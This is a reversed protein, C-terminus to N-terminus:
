AVIVLDSAAIPPFGTFTALQVAAGVGNGDADFYLIGNGPNYWLRQDASSPAPGTGFLGPALSGLAEGGLAAFTSRSIGIKDTGSAFDRVVDADVSFPQDFVFLDAGAGGTLEDFGAAGILTDAGDGGQLWDRGLGGILLDDGGNGILFDRGLGGDIRNNGGNGTITNDFSNGTIELDDSGNMTLNEVNEPMAYSVTTFIRDVGEGVLEIIQDGVNDVFYTDAGIGGVLLDAGGRGDLTDNGSGGYIADAAANGTLVDNGGLGSLTWFDATPATYTNAGNDGTWSRAEPLNNIAIDFASDVFAGAADTGRVVIRHSQASEFDLMAGPAVVIQGSVPDIVFRGGASDILSFTASDGSDVDQVTATGVVTGALANEDVRSASLTLATPAQNSGVIQVSVNATSTLGARDTVTYQFTDFLVEGARLSQFRTGAEYTVSGNVLALPVGAGSLLPITAITLQDGSDPDRDNGTLAAAGIITDAADGVSVFDDFATPQDNTGALQVFVRGVASAGTGDEVVYEFIARGDFDPTPTFLITGDVLEANGGSLSSVSVLSLIGANGNIDNALLDAGAILLPTDEAGAFSDTTARLQPSASPDLLPNFVRLKVANGDPDGGAGSSDSYVAVFSGSALFALSPDSQQGLTRYNVAVEVGMREGTATFSQSRIGSGGAEGFTGSFDHWAVVFGGSALPAITSSLQADLTSTNVLLEGGVRTGTPTFIQAKVSYYDPDGVGSNDTWTIVFNGGLLETVAPQLQASHTSTNVLFESGLATGSSSFIRAKISSSVADGGQLSADRWTVVFGGSSLQTIAPDDQRASTTSNILIAGGLPNGAADFRQGVIGGGSTDGYLTSSDGFVVIFGGDALGAVNADIQSYASTQPRVVLDGTLATGSSDFVRAIVANGTAGRTGSADTWAVVFGGNALADVEPKVQNGATVANILFESGRRTGNENFVQGKIGFGSADGGSQSGDSWTVVFGGDELRTVTPTQQNAFTATNVLIEDSAAYRSERLANTITLPIVEAFSNGFDDTVRITIFPAPNAEFDLKLSEAIFIRGNEIRFGGGTSDDVLEYQYNANVAGNASLAAVATNQASAESFMTATIGIDTITGTGPAFLQARVATGSVDGPARSGDTWGVILEGTSLAAIAPQEQGNLTSTNSIFETGIKGGNDDFVQTKVAFSSYDALLASNDTWSVAFGGSPLATIAPQTQGNVTTTNVLFEGGARTGDNDFVQAKIGTGSLDGGQRSQDTWAVVFRGSALAAVVPQNQNGQIATNVLFETGVRAGSSSYLQGKIGFGSTDGGLRSSDAWTIVFGGNSLAAAVPTTQDATTVTNVLFEVGIRVGTSSLLQGRVSSGSNDGGLLSTDAWTVLVNGSALVTVAQDQQNNLTTTNVLLESGVRVGAADFFQARIATGSADGASASADTWTAVFGGGPLPAISSRSQDGAVASNVLLEAGVANGAADYRRARIATGSTDGGTLSGDTWSMLFGGGALATIAVDSQNNATAQNVLFEGGPRRYARSM